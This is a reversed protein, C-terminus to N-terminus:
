GLSFLIILFCITAGSQTYNVVCNFLVCSLKNQLRLSLKDSNAIWMRLDTDVAKMPAVKQVFLGWSFQQSDTSVMGGM